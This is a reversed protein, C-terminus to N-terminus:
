CPQALPIRMTVLLGGDAPEMADISGHAEGIFESAITLGIGLHKTRTTFFPKFIEDPTADRLGPGRDVVTFVVMDHEVRVNLDVPMHGTEEIANKIIEFLSARVHGGCSARTVALAPQMDVNFTATPFLSSIRDTLLTLLDGLPEPTLGTKREPCERDLLLNLHQTMETIVECEHVMLPFYEMTEPDLQGELESELISVASRIGSAFNRLRHRLVRNMRRLDEATANM